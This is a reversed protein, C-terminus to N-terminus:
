EQLTLQRVKRAVQRIKTREAATAFGAAVMDDLMNDLRADTMNIRGIALGIMILEYNTM